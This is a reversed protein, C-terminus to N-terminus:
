DPAAAGRGPGTERASESAVPRLSGGDGRAPGHAQAPGTGTDGGRGKGGWDPERVGKFSERATPPERGKGESQM